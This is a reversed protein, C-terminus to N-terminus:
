SLYFAFNDLNRAKVNLHGALTAKDIKRNRYQKFAVKSFGEGLYSIKTLYPNGGTRKQRDRLYDKNWEASLREYDAKKVVNNSLLKRLIVERSVSYKHALEPIMEFGIDRYYEVDSEFSDTPVLVESALQNCRIEIKKDSTAMHDIYSEDIDTVGNVGFLIHGLEHFLTFTQRTFSNSNNIMIVPFQADILCFGSISRDKFSDKFCFIGAKELAVRWAKFAEDQYKFKFQTQLTIGLRKRIEAALDHLTYDHPNLRRHIADYNSNGEFLEVLSNQYSQALLMKKRTDLTLKEFEYNPLRRFKKIPNEIDPPEPFFFVAIPIKFYSYALISLTTYSIGKEGSEWLRIEQPEKKLEHALEEISLGLRNRAWSFIKPNASKIM